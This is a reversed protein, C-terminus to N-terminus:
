ARSLCEDILREVLEAASPAPGPAWLSRQECFHAARPVSCGSYPCPGNNAWLFFPADGDPHHAADYRMLDRCLDNSVAGWFALLMREPAPWVTDPSYLAGYLDVGYLNAGSLNARSLDARSLDAGYLDAGYLDARSLDAGYLDAGYLDAGRLNAGSLNARSLDAGRLDAGSLDAGSLNAGLLNARSLDAGALDAGSLNARSLNARSLDARSLNARVGDPGGRLWAAHLKLTMEM